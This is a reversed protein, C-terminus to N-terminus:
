VVAVEAYGTPDAVGAQRFAAQRSRCAGCWGCHTAGGRYCSWTQAFPVGLAAGAAVVQAKPWFVFPTLIRAGLAPSLAQLFGPRCDAYIAADDLTMGAAIAPIGRSEALSAALSLLVANRGPVVTVLQAADSPATNPLPTSDTLASGRLVFGDLRVVDFRIDLCAAIQAAADLEQSHHQGYWVGLAELACGAGRLHYALTVSDLGGSLLVLAHAPM